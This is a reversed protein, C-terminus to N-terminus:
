AGSGGAQGGLVEPLETHRRFEGPDLAGAPTQVRGGGAEAFAWVLANWAQRLGLDANGWTVFVVEAEGRRLTVMGQATGVRLERWTTPPTEDPFSLEGDIMRMQVAFGRGALLDRVAEWTPVAGAFSVRQEMGM